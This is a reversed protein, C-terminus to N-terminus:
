QYSYYSTNNGGTYPTYPHTTVSSSTTNDNNVGGASCNTRQAGPLDNLLFFGQSMAAQVADSPISLINIKGDSSGCVAPYMRGDMGCASSVVPIRMSQLQRQMEALPVGGGECQRSGQYKYVDVYSVPAPVPAPAPAPYPSVWPNVLGGNVMNPPVCGSLLVSSFLAFGGLRFFSM